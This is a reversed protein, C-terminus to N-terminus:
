RAGESPSGLRDQIDALLAEVRKKNAGLDSHGVRSRSYICLAAGTGHPMVRLDLDDKFRLLPTRVVASVTRAAEDAQVESTGRLARVAAEAAAYLASPAAGFVPSARDPTSSTCAGEPAVLYTNPSGPRTLTEFDIM